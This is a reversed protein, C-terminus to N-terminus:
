LYAGMVRRLRVLASILDRYVRALCEGSEFDVDGVYYNVSIQKQDLDPDGWDLSLGAKGEIGVRSSLIAGYIEKKFSCTVMCRRARRGQRISLSMKASGSAFGLWIDDSFNPFRMGSGIFEPDALAVERLGRWFGYRSLQTENMAGAAGPAAKTASDDNATAASLRLLDSLLMLSEQSRELLAQQEASYEDVSDDCLFHLSQPDIGIIGLFEELFGRFGRVEEDILDTHYDRNLQSGADDETCMLAFIRLPETPSPANAKSARVILNYIGEKCQQMCLLGFLILMQRPRELGNDPIVKMKTLLLFANLLRKLGRPNTGMSLACLSQYTPMDEDSPTINIRRLGERLYSRIDYEVVPVKFPVQIIKDFFAKGKEADKLGQPSHDRLNFGYKEAAGRIVVDYDIALVFVCKKCDFFIKLVELLEMAKSPVLRDLDDIFVVVRDKKQHECSSDVAKQLSARLSDISEALDLDGDKDASAVVNEVLGNSLTRAATNILLACVKKGYEALQRQGARGDFLGIKALFFRIMSIPLQNGMEFQSFQWTNFFVPIVQDKIRDQIMAMMSTKGSGWSGQISITMPTECNVIFDSLGEIYGEIGFQDTTAPLDTLGINSM